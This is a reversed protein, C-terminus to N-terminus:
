CGYAELLATQTKPGSIGDVVLPDHDKQFAKTAKTTIPGKINDVNGSDYALSNLRAQLGAVTDIPQLAGFDLKWTIGLDDLRLEGTIAKPPIPEEVMGEATTTGASIKGDVTLTYAAGAIPGEQFREFRLRLRAPSLPTQFVHQAGTGRSEEKASKDPIFVSDGPVLTNPNKRRAKLQANNPHDWLVQYDVFGYQSAISVLCDGRSVKHYQPM